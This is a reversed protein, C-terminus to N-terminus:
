DASITKDKLLQQTSSEFARLAEPDASGIVSGELQSKYFDAESQAAAQQAIFHAADSKKAAEADARQRQFDLWGHQVQRASKVRM